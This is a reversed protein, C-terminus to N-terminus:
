SSRFAWYDRGKNLTRKVKGIYKKREQYPEKKLSLWTRQRGEEGPRSAKPDLYNNLIMCFNYWVQDTEHHLESLFKNTPPTPGFRRIGSLGVSM